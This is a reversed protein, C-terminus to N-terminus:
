VATISSIYMINMICIHLLYTLLLTYKKNNLEHLICRIKYITVGSVSSILIVYYHINDVFLYTYIISKLVATGFAINKINEISNYKNYEYIFIFIFPINIYMNNIYSTCVAFIAFYDFLLYTKKYESANCLYSAIILLSNSLKWLILKSCYFAKITSIFFLLSSSGKIFYTLSTQNILTTQNILSTLCNYM